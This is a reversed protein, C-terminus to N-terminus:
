GRDAGEIGLFGRLVAGAVTGTTKAHRWLGGEIVQGQSLYITVETADPEWAINILGGTGVNQLYKFPVGNRQLNKETVVDSLAVTYPRSWRRNPTAVNITDVAM